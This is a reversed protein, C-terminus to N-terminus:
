ESTPERGPSPAREPRKPPPMPDPPEVVHPVEAHEGLHAHIESLARDFDGRDVDRTFRPVGVWKRDSERVHPGLADIAAGTDGQNFLHADIAAVRVGAEPHDRVVRLTADVAEGTALYALMEVARARLMTSADFDLDCSILGPASHASTEEHPEHGATIQGQTWVFTELPDLAEPSRMEGVVALLMLHRGRDHVPLDHLSAVLVAVSGDAAAAIQNRVLDVQDVGTGAAWLLFEDVSDPTLRV